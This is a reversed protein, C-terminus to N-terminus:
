KNFCYSKFFNDNPDPCGNTLALSNDLISNLTVNFLSSFFM